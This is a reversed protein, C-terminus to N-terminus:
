PFPDTTLQRVGTDRRSSPNPWRMNGKNPSKAQQPVQGTVLSSNFLLTLAIAPKQAVAQLHCHVGDPGAAKRPNLHLLLRYVGNERIAIEPMDPHTSEEFKPLDDFDERTFVNYFHRRPYGDQGVKASSSDM